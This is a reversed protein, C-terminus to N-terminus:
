GIGKGFIKNRCAHDIVTHMLDKLARGEGIGLLIYGTAWRVFEDFGMDLATKM